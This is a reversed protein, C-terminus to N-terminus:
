PGWNIEITGLDIGDGNVQTPTITVDFFVNDYPSSNSIPVVALVGDDYSSQNTAAYPNNTIIIYEPAAYVNNPSTNGATTTGYYGDFPPIWKNISDILIKGLNSSYTTEFHDLEIRKPGGTDNEKWWSRFWWDRQDNNPNSLENQWDYPDGHCIGLSLTNRQGTIRYLQDFNFFFDIFHKKYLSTTAM